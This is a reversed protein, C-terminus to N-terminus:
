FFVFQWIFPKYYGLFRRIHGTEGKKANPANKVVESYTVGYKKLYKEDKLRRREAAKEERQPM